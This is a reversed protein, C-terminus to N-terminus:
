QPKSGPPWSESKAKRWVQYSSYVVCVIALSVFLWRPYGPLFIALATFPVTAPGSMKTTWDTGFARIFGRFTLDPPPFAEQELLKVKLERGIKSVFRSAWQETANNAIATVADPPLGQQQSAVPHRINRAQADAVNKIRANIFDEDSQSLRGHNRRLILDLWIDYTAQCIRESAEQALNIHQQIAAGGLLAGRAAM